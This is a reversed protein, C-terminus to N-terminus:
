SDMVTTVTSSGAANAVVTRHSLMPVSKSLTGAGVCRRQSGGGEWAELGTTPDVRRNQLNGRAIAFPRTARSREQSGRRATQWDWVDSSSPQVASVAISM